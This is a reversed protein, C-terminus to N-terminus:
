DTGESWKEYRVSWEGHIDWGLREMDNRDVCDNCFYQSTSTDSKFESGCGECYLMKRERRDTRVIEHCQRSVKFLKDYLEDSNDGLVDDRETLRGIEFVIKRLFDIESILRPIDERSHAIFEADAEYECEAIFNTGSWSGDSESKIESIDSVYIECEVAWYGGTAKDVRQRIAELQETTLREM